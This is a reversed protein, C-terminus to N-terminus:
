FLRQVLNKVCGGAMGMIKEPHVQVPLPATLSDHDPCNKPIGRVTFYCLCRTTLRPRHGAQIGSPKKLNENRPAV